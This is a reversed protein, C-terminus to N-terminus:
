DQIIFRASSVKNEQRIFLIFLGAKLGSVNLRGMGNTGPLLTIQLVVEGNMNFITCEPKNKLESSFYLYHRAPNPFLHIASVQRLEKLNTTSGQIDTKYLTLGGRSNGCIMELYGDRDIDALDASSRFGDRIRGFESEILVFKDTIDESVEYLQFYGSNSGTVMVTRGNQTFIRPSSYGLFESQRRTDIQGLFDTNGSTAPDPHFEPKKISGQNMFFNINGSEEGIILDPLGDRNLDFIQPTALSGVDIEFYPFIVAGREFRGDLGKNEIFILKGRRTGIIIDMDGDGDLDGSCPYLADAEGPPLGDPVLDIITSTFAPAQSSGNNEFYFIRSPNQPNFNAEYRSGVLLDPLHDGNVDMFHPYANIGFDLMEATLFDRQVLELHSTQPNRLYKWSVQINELADVANPSAIFDLYGDQNVDLHYSGPFFSIDVPSSSLPFAPIVMDIFAFNRNGGNRLFTLNSFSVDGILIDLDGDGDQDFASITSGAHLRRAPSFLPCTQHDNSLIITNDFFNEIVRGWCNDDLEYVLTDPSLKREKVVNRYYFLRSGDIDFTLIDLDGDGDFDEIAPIDIQNVFIQTIGSATPYTLVPFPFHNFSILSFVLRGGNFSGRYVKIGPIGPDSATFIDPVGDQNYDVLLAWDHLDPFPEAAKRDYDYSPPSNQCNGKFIMVKNGGRDFVFLDTCTDQDLRAMSFQPSNLGGKFPDDLLVGDVIVPFVVPTVSDFQAFLATGICFRLLVGIFLPRM